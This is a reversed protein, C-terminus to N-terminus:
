FDYRKVTIYLAFSTPGTGSYILLMIAIDGGVHPLSSYSNKIRSVQKERNMRFKVSLACGNQSIQYVFFFKKKSFIM